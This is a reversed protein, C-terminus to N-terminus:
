LIRRYRLLSGARLVTANANATAQCWSLRFTGGAAVWSGVLRAVRNSTATGLSALATGSNALAASTTAFDSTSWGTYNFVGRSTVDGEGLAVKFDPASGGVPSAYILMLEIEYVGGSVTAFQLATDTTLTATTVSQDSGKTIVTWAGTEADTLTKATITAAIYDGVLVSRATSNEQARAITFTDGSAIATVRVIEANSALPRTGAPWVTANFPPSPFLAGEGPAVVLSLGSSAPSPPTAVSSFAFNKHADPM